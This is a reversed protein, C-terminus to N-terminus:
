GCDAETVASGIMVTEPVTTDEPFAVVATGLSSGLVTVLVTGNETQVCQAQGTDILSGAPVTFGAHPETLALDATMTAEPDQRMATVLKTDAALETLFAADDVIGSESVPGTLSGLRLTRQGTTLNQPMSEVELRDIAGQASALQAGPNAQQGVTIECRVGPIETSPLWVFEARQAIREGRTAGAAERLDQVAFSTAWGYAGDVLEPALHGFRALEAQLAEVDAGKDGHALDRYLPVTTHLAILPLADVRWVITGSTITGADECWSATLTGAAQAALATADAAILRVQVRRTDDFDKAVVPATTEAAGPRLLEPSAAPRLAFGLAGAATVLVLACVVMLTVKGRHMM